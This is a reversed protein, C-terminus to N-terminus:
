TNAIKWPFQQQTNLKGNESAIKFSVAEPIFGAPLSLEGAFEHFDRLKFGLGDVKVSNEYRVPLFISKKGIRGLITM